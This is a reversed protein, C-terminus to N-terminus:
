VEGLYCIVGQVSRIASNLTYKENTIYKRNYCNGINPDKIDLGYGMM